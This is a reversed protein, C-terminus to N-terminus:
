HPFVQGAKILSANLAEMDLELETRKGIFDVINETAANGVLDDEAMPCGGFGKLAGDFRRCGAQWAAEFKPEWHNPAVHLHAGFKVEPFEPILAEFLYTIDEPTAMGVTDALSIVGIGLDEVLHRVWKIAVDKNWEDGYPNGFAMSIYVVMRKAAENCIGVINETRRLSGEIDTKTNRQQFTESISFPYGLHDVMDHKCADEAGRENAVIVLLESDTDTLDLAHLVESTDRMQPIAKPSVFSGIDITHFGVSLLGQLYEIKKETPIFESLGQMADRPCEILNVGEM